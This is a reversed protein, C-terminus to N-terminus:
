RGFWYSAKVMLVNTPPAAWLADWNTALSDDWADAASTRGQSWVAYLASGPRYEWRVVLNSRFERFSFDPNRFSYRAGEAAEYTGSAADFALQAPSLAHFRDDYAAAGTSTASKFRDYRGTSAFPSAYLQVSLDPTLSVNARLTLAWTSQEIRGLLWRPSGAAEATGVYQLDDRNRSSELRASLRVLNSPRWWGSAFLNLQRSRKEQHFHGHGSLGGGLRRSSDSAVGLSTCVFRDLKMAPGGRLLRTDLPADVFRLGADASWKNRFAGSLELATMGGTKTRGYDWTDERSLAASYSRFPGVPQTQAWRLSANHHLQDAQQLYGLDNLELGPSIWSFEETFRVRGRETRGFRLRGGHGSLTTALPDLALHAADPRQYYHVPSTQLARIAAAEGGVQSFTGRADLLWGRDGFYRVFDVGGTTARSPLFALAPDDISRQTNTLMGGLSTNGKDWDKHVRAVTYSGFPEVAQRRSGSASSLSALERQTLSQLVGLSLGAPTKGTVKVAGLITTSEPAELREGAAVWPSSSPAHGIRRSYFLTGGGAQLDFSTISRGELFFPRKEEYFTEYATLNMVSPDAEVQGFDPNVTADLTFNSTLGLKLDLGLSGSTSRDRVPESATRGLLHPLLELHRSRPLDRIGRLEGLQHMRGTNQRPILQWQDEEGHRAIWRWAHM